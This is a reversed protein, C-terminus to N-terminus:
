DSEVYIESHAGFDDPLIRNLNKEKVINSVKWSILRDKEKM